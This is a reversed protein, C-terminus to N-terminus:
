IERARENALKTNRVFWESFESELVAGYRDGDLYRLPLPDSERKAMEYITEKRKHWQKALDPVNILLM